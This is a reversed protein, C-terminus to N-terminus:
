ADFSSAQIHQGRVSSFLTFIPPSTVLNDDVIYLLSSKICCMRADRGGGGKCGCMTLGRSGAKQPLVLTLQQM